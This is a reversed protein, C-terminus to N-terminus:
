TKTSREEPESLENLFISIRAAVVETQPHWGQPVFSKFEKMKVPLDVAGYAVL